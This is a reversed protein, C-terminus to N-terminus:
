RRTKIQMEQTNQKVKQTLRTKHKAKNLMNKNSQKEIKNIKKKEYFFIKKFISFNSFYLFLTDQTCQYKHVM